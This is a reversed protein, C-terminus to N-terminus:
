KMDLEFVRKALNQVSSGPSIMKVPVGGPTPANALGGWNKFTDVWKRM